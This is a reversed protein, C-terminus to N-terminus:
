NEVRSKQRGQMLEPKQNRRQQRVQLQQTRAIEPKEAEVKWDVRTSMGEATPLEAATHSEETV